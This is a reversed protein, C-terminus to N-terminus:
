LCHQVAGLHLVQISIGKIWYSRGALEMPTMKYPRRSIPATGPQLDITFQVDQDLPMGLLDEPFSM